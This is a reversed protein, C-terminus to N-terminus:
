TIKETMAHNAAGYRCSSRAQVLAPWADRRRDTGRDRHSLSLPSVWRPCTSEHLSVSGFWALPETEMPTTSVIDKVRVMTM